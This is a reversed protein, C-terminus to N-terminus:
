AFSSGHFLSPGDRILREFNPSRDEGRRARLEALYFVHELNRLQIKEVSDGDFRVVVTQSEDITVLNLVDCRCGNSARNGVVLDVRKGSRVPRQDQMRVGSVVFTRGERSPPTPQKAPLVPFFEFLPQWTVISTRGVPRGVIVGHRRGTLGRCRVGDPDTVDLYAHEGGGFRGAEAIGDPRDVTLGIGNQPGVVGILHRPPDRGAEQDGGDGLRGVTLQQAMGAERESGWLIDDTVGALRQRQWGGSPPVDERRDLSIQDLPRRRASEDAHVAFGGGGMGVALAGQEVEAPM